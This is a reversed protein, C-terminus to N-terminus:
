PWEKTSLIRESYQCFALVIMSFGNLIATILLTQNVRIGRHVDEAATADILYNHTVCCSENM